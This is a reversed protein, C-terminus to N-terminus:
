YGWPSKCVWQPVDMAKSIRPVLLVFALNWVFNIKCSKPKFVEQQKNVTVQGERLRQLYRSSLDERLPPTEFSSLSPGRELGATAILDDVAHNCLVKWSFSCAKICFHHFISFQPDRISPLFDSSSGPSNWTELHHACSLYSSTRVTFQPRLVLLVREKMISYNFFQAISFM